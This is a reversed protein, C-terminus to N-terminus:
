LAACRESVSFVSGIVAACGISIILAGPQEETVSQTRAGAQSQSFIRSIRGEEFFGL